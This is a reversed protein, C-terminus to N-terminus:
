RRSGSVTRGGGGGAGGGANFETNDFDYNGVRVQTYVLRQKSPNAQTLAGFTARAAFEDEDLM